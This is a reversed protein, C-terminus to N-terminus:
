GRSVRAQVAGVNAAICRNPVKIRWNATSLGPDNDTDMGAFYIHMNENIMACRTFFHLGM